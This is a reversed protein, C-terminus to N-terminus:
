EKSHITRLLVSSKAENTPLSTDDGCFERAVSLFDTSRAPKPLTGDALPLAKAHGSVVVIVLDPYRARAIALFKEGSMRPMREDLLVLGPLESARSLMELAAVGDPAVLVSFGEERLLEAVEERYDPDDDILLVWKVGNDYRPLTSRAFHSTVSSSLAM